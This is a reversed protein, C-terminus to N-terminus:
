IECIKKSRTTLAYRLNMISKVSRELTFCDSFDAAQPMIMILLIQTMQTM